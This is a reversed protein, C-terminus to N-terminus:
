SFVVYVSVKEKLSTLDPFDPEILKDIHIIELNGEKMCLVRSKQNHFDIEVYRSYKPNLSVRLLDVQGTEDDVFIQLTHNVGTCLRETHSSNKNLAYILSGVVKTNRLKKDCIPCVLTDDM